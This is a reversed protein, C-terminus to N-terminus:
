PEPAYTYVYIQGVTYGAVIIEEYGDNNIDGHAANGTFCM